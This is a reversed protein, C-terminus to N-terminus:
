VPEKFSDLWNFFEIGHGGNIKEDMGLVWRLSEIKKMLNSAMFSQSNDPWPMEPDSNRSQSIEGYEVCLEKLKIEIEEKTRM